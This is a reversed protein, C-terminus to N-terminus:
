FSLISAREKIKENLNNFNYEGFTKLIQESSPGYFYNIDFGDNVTLEKCDIGCTDKLWQGVFQRNSILGPADYNLLTIENLDCECLKIIKNVFWWPDILNLTGKFYRLRYENFSIRGTKWDTQLYQNPALEPFSPSRFWYPPSYAISVPHKVYSIMKFSSTTLSM